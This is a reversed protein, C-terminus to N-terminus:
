KKVYKGDRLPFKLALVVGIVSGVVLGWRSANIQSKNKSTLKKM